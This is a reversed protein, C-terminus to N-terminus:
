AATEPSTFGIWMDPRLAFAKPKGRAIAWPMYVAERAKVSARTSRERGRRQSTDKLAGTVSGPVTSTEQSSSRSDPVCAHTPHRGRLPSLLGRRQKSACIWVRPQAQRPQRPQAEPLQPWGSREEQVVQTAGAPRVRGAGNWRDRITSAPRDRSADTPTPQFRDTPRTHMESPNAETMAGRFGCEISALSPVVQRVPATPVLPWAGRSLHWPARAAPLDCDHDGGSHDPRGTPVDKRVLTPLGHSRS